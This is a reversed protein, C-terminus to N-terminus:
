NRTIMEDLNLLVNATATWAAHEIPSLDGLNLAQGNAILSKAADPNLQYYALQEDVFNRLM